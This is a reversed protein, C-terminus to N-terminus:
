RKLSMPQQFTQTCNQPAETAEASQISFEHYFTRRLSDKICFPKSFGTADLKQTNIETSSCFKRIRVLSVPCQTGTFYSFIDCCLGGLIGFIYPVRLKSPRRGQIDYISEVLTRMSFDPKDAYNFVEEGSFGQELNYKIFSAVNGVYAMSKINRGNGIMCFNGFAIQKFLNYVNGRNDEGFIVAPRLILASRGSGKRVWQRVLREAELKSKGYHNRPFARSTEKPPTSSHLGYVAVTSTFLLKRVGLKDMADLVNQMGKVNVDFYLNTPHVDDRHQAALLVVTDAGVLHREFSARYRVDGLTTCEPHKSSQALDINTVTYCKKLLSILRTGVFGSGGIICVKTMLNTHRLKKQVFNDKHNCHDLYTATNHPLQRM